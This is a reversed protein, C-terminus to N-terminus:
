SFIPSAQWLNGVIAYEGSNIETLTISESTKSNVLPRIPQLQDAKRIIATEESTLNGTLVDSTVKVSIRSNIDEITLNYTSNTQGNIEVNNRLWQFSLNGTNNGPTYVASLTEGYQPTGDDIITVEGTLPQDILWGYWKGDEEGDSLDYETIKDALTSLSKDKPTGTFPSGNITPPNESNLKLSNFNVNNNFARDGLLILSDFELSNIGSGTFAYESIVQTKIIDVEALKNCSEFAYKGITILEPADIKELNNCDSFGYDQIETVKPLDIEKINDANSFGSKKVLLVEPLSWSSSTAQNCEYFMYAGVIQLKPMEVNNLLPCGQFAGASSFLQGDGVQTLEPFSVTKLSSCRSFAGRDIYEVKGMVITQLSNNSGLAYEGVSIVNPCSVSTLATCSSLARKGIQVLSNIEVTIM